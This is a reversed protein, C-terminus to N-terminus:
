FKVVLVIHVDVEAREIKLGRGLNDVLVREAACGFFCIFSFREVREVAVRLGAGVGDEACVFRLVVGAFSKDVELVRNDGVEARGFRFNEM